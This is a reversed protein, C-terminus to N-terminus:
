EEKNKQSERCVLSYTEARNMFSYHVLQKLTLNFAKVRFFLDTEGLSVILFLGNKVDDNKGKYEWMDGLEVEIGNEFKKM